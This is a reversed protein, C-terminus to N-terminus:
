NNLENLFQKIHIFQFLTSLFGLKLRGFRETSSKAPRYASLAVFSLHHDHKTIIHLNLRWIIEDGFFHLNEWFLFFYGRIKM